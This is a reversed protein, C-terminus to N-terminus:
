KKRRAGIVQYSNWFMRRNRITAGFECLAECSATWRRPPLLGCAGRIDMAGEFYGKPYYQWIGIEEGIRMGKTLLIQLLYLPNLPNPELFIWGSMFVKSSLLAEFLQYLAMLENGRIHHLVHFGCVARTDEPYLGQDFPSANIIELREMGSLRKALKEALIADPEIARVRYGMNILVETYRGSGAGLEVLIDGPVADLESLLNRVIAVHHM